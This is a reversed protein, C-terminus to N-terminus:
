KMLQRGMTHYILTSDAHERSPVADGDPQAHGGIEPVERKAAQSADITDGEVGRESPNQWISRPRSMKRLNLIISVSFSIFSFSCSSCCCCCYHFYIFCCCYFKLFGFKYIEKRGWDNIDVSWFQEKKSINSFSNTFQWVTFNLKKNNNNELFLRVHVM